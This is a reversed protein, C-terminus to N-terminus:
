EGRADRHAALSKEFAASNKRFAERACEDGPDRMILALNHRLIECGKDFPWDLRRGLERIRRRGEALNM